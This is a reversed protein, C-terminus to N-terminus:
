YFHSVTRDKFPITKELAALVLKDHALQDEAEALKKEKKKWLNQAVGKELGNRTAEYDEKAKAVEERLSPIRM